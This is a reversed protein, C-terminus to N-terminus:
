VGTSGFGGMGRETDNDVKGLTVNKIGDGDFPVLQFLRDDKNIYFPEDSINDVVAILENRYGKDIIGVSNSLRLPTKSGMSSRPILMYGKYIKEGDSSLTYLESKIGLKIKLSCMSAPIKLPKPCYLDFGSDGKYNFKKKYNEELNEHICEINITTM